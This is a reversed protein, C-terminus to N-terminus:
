TLSNQLWHKRYLGDADYDAAQKQINFWRHGRPDNGVGAIYAWNCWNSCVDYDILQQEFYAAGYRWDGNLENCFFSAVNQRGRNSMFGTKKLELMNADIFDNGTEANVWKLFKKQNFVTKPPSSPKIGAKQFFLYGYKEMMLGFFDRWLLEFILWYTSENATNQSEYNKIKHYIEKASLAGNALWASFKSSYDAGLLGNRTEKYIAIFHNDLYYNLRNIGAARGGLFLLAAKPDTPIQSFGIETLNPLEFAPLKPSKIAKPQPFCASITSYKEVKNRFNTFTDPTLTVEFPLDNPYYLNRTHFTKIEFNSKKGSLVLREIMKQEEPAAEAATYLTQASYQLMLKPLEEEPKGILFLLSSGLNCLQKNLDELTQWLFKARFYGLRSSQLPTTKTLTIDFCYVPVIEDNHHVAEILTENDFLRLDNKFWVLAIKKM